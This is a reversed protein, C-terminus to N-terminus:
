LLNNRFLLCAFGDANVRGAAGVAIYDFSCDFACFPIIGTNQDLSSCVLNVLVATVSAHLRNIETVKNVLDSFFDAKCGIADEKAAVM